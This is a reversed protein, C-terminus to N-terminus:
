VGLIRDIYKAFWIDKGFIQCHLIMIAALVAAVGFVVSVTAGIYFQVIESSM